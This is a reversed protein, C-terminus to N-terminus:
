QDNQSRELSDSVIKSQEFFQSTFRYDEQKEQNSFDFEEFIKGPNSQM